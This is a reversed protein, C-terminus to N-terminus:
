LIGGVKKGDEETACAIYAPVAEVPDSMIHQLLWIATGGHIDISECAAKFNHSFYLVSIPDLPKFNGSKIQVDM